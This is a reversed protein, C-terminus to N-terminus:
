LAVKGLDGVVEDAGAEQLLREDSLRAIGICRMGASKAAQVGNPADEIVTCNSPDVCAEEAAALFIAPHPKGQEFDIGCVNTPFLGMVTRGDHLRVRQLMANANKSSSAVALKWGAAEARLALGIADDFARFQGADILVLIMTQKLEALEIARAGDPDAIGLARLLAASGEARQRGAVNSQYVATSYPAHPVHWRERALREVSEGWAMEHPSDVLVGDVDFILCKLM